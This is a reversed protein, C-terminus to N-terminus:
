AGGNCTLPTGGAPRGGRADPDTLQAEEPFPWPLAAPYYDFSHPSDHAAYLRCWDPEGPGYTHTDSVLDCVEADFLERRRGRWRLWRAAEHRLSSMGDSVHLGDHEVHLRCRVIMPAASAADPFTGFAEREAETTWAPYLCVDAWLRQGAAMAGGLPREVNTVMAAMM